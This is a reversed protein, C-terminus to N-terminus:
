SSTLTGLRGNKFGKMKDNEKIYFHKCFHEYALVKAFAFTSAPSIAMTQKKSMRNRGIIVKEIGAKLLM